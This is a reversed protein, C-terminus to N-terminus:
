STTASQEVIVTLVLFDAYFLFLLWCTGMAWHDKRREHRATFFLFTGLQQLWFAAQVLYYSKILADLQALPYDTWLERSNQLIPYYKSQAYIYLGVALSLTYYVFLYAQEKFKALDGSDSESQQAPSHNGSASGGGAGNVHRYLAALLWGSVRQVAALVVIWGAIFQVDDVLLTVLRGEAEDAQAM